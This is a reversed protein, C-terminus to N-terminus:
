GMNNQAGIRGSLTGPPLKSALQLDISPCTAAVRALPRAPAKVAADASLTLTGVRTLTRRQPTRPAAWSLGPSAPTPPCKHNNM